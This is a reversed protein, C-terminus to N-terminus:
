HERLVQHSLFLAIQLLQNLAMSFIHSYSYDYLYYLTLTFILLIIIWERHSFFGSQDLYLSDLDQLGVRASM